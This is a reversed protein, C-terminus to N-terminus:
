SEFGFTLCKIVIFLMELGTNLREGMGALLYFLNSTTDFGFGVNIRLLRM